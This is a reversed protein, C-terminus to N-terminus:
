ETLLAWNKVGNVIYRNPDAAVIDAEIKRAFSDEVSKYAKLNKNYDTQLNALETECKTVKQSLNRRAAKDTPHKEIIGCLMVSTCDDGDCNRRTHGVKM